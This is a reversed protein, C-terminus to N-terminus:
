PEPKGDEYYTGTCPDIYDGANFRDGHQPFYWEIADYARRGHCSGLHFAVVRASEETGAAVSQNPGVYVSIGTGIAKAGGWTAWQIHTVLGTPDGGNFIKSPRAQGYGSQHPAWPGALIATTNAAAIAASTCALAGAAVIALTRRPPHCRV